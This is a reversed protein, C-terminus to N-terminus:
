NCEGTERCELSECSVVISLALCEVSNSDSTAMAFGMMDMASGVIYENKARRVNSRSPSPELAHRPRPGLTPGDRWSRMFTTFNCGFRLQYRSAPRPIERREVQSQDGMRLTPSIQSVTSNDGYYIVDLRYGNIFM